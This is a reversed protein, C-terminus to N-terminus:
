DGFLGGSDVVVTEYTDGRLLTLSAQTAGALARTFIRPGENPDKGLAIGNVDIVRDGAQLGLANFASMDRGPSLAFGAAAGTEDLQPGVLMVESLPPPTRAAVTGGPHAHPRSDGAPVAVIAPTAPATAQSSGDAHKILSLAELRHERELVAHGSFVARLTAGSAGDIADGIRYTRESGSSAIIVQSSEGGEAYLIGSLRVDLTTEPTAVNPLPPPEPGAAEAEGFLHATALAGRSVDPSQRPARAQAFDAPASRAEVIVWTLAALEYAVIAGLLVCAVRPLYRNANALWAATVALRAAVNRPIDMPQARHSAIM